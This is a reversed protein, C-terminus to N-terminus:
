QAYESPAIEIQLQEFREGNPLIKSKELELKKEALLYDRRKELTPFEYLDRKIALTEKLASTVDKLNKTEVTGDLARELSVELKECVSMLPALINRRDWDERVSLRSLRKESLKFREALESLEFGRYEYLYRLYAIDKKM